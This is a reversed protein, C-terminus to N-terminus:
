VATSGLDKRESTARRSRRIHGYNLAAVFIAGGILNGPVAVVLFYAADLAGFGEVMFLAVFAEVGGAISHHLGGLGILFTALYISVMQSMEPPSALVLWSGIGMLWGALVSSALLAWPGYATLHAGLVAYGPAAHIVPNAATLLAASICAGVLNGALVVGWVRLMGRIPARKDLVPYVATATQETFLETGAIVVMVFGLPYVLAIALRSALTPPAGGEVTFSAVVGAAMATFGLMLGAAIASLLLSLTPRKCQEIGERVAHELTDDPHRRHQDIRKLIVPVFTNAEARRELERSTPNEGDDRSTLAAPSETPPSQTEM